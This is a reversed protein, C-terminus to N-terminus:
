DEGKVLHTHLSLPVPNQRVKRTIIEIVDGDSPHPLDLVPEQKMKKHRHQGLHKIEAIIQSDQYWAEHASFAEEIPLRFIFKLATNLDNIHCTSLFLYLRDGAESVIDGVRLLYCMTLAQTTSLGEVPRLSILVGKSNVPLLTSNMRSLVAKCFEPPSLFGKQHISNITEIIHEFRESIYRTSIQGQIGDIMMIFQSWSVNAPVILSVGCAQLLSEDSHRINNSMERIVIKLANGCNIRLQHVQKALEDIKSSNYLSFIVTAAKTSEARQELLKSNDFLQWEVPPEAGDFINKEAFCLTDENLLIPREQKTSDSLTLGEKNDYVLTLTQNATLGNVGGWWSVTYLGENEECQLNSLGDLYRRLPMLQTKLKSVGANYNLVLLNSQQVQLWSSTKKIWHIIEESSFQHWFSSNIHLILLRNKINLSRNLDSTFNFLAAKKEPLKFLPLKKIVVGTLNALIHEPEEGGCILAARAQLPLTHITQRCIADADNKRDCNIWYFGPSQMTSLEVWLKPIGLSFSLM